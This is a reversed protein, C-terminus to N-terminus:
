NKVTSTPTTKRCGNPPAVALTAGRAMTYTDIVAVPAANGPPPKTAAPAAATLALPASVTELALATEQAKVDPTGSGIERQGERRGAALFALLVPPDSPAGPGPAVFPALATALGGTTVDVVGPSATSPQPANRASAAMLSSAPTQQPDTAAVQGALAQGVQTPKSLVTVSTTPKASVSLDGAPPTQASAAKATASPQAAPTSNNNKKPSKPPGVPTEAVAPETKSQPKPPTKADGTPLSADDGSTQAGGSSDYNM